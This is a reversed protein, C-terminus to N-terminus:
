LRRMPPWQATVAPGLVAMQEPGAAMRVPILSVHGAKESPTKQNQKAKSAFTATSETLMTGLSNVATRAPRAINSTNM